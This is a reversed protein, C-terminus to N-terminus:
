FYLSPNTNGIRVVLTPQGPVACITSFDEDVIFVSFHTPRVVSDQIEVPSAGPYGVSVTVSDLTFDPFTKQPMQIASMFGLGVVFITILNSAVPHEAMWKIISNM